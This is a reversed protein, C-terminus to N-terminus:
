AASGQRLRLSHPNVYAHYDDLGLRDDREVLGIGDDEDDTGTRRSESTTGVEQRDLDEDDIEPVSTFSAAIGTGRSYNAHGAGDDNFSDWLLSDVSHMSDDISVISARKKLDVFRSPPLSSAQSNSGMSRRYGAPGQATTPNGGSITNRMSSVKIMFDRISSPPVQPEASDNYAQEFDKGYLESETNRGATSMTVNMNTPITSATAASVAMMQDLRERLRDREAELVANKERLEDNDDALNNLECQVTVADDVSFDSGRRRARLPRSLQPQEQQAANNESTLCREFNLQGDGLSEKSLSRCLRRALSPTQEHGKNFPISVSAGLPVEYDASLPGEYDSDKAGNIESGLLSEVAKGFASFGSGTSTNSGRRRYSGEREQGSSHKKLLVAQKELNAVMQKLEAESAKASCLETRLMCNEETLVRAKSQLIENNAKVSALEVKLNILEGSEVCISTDDRSRSSRSTANSVSNHDYISSSDSSAQSPPSSPPPSSKEDDDDDDDDDIPRTISRRRRSRPDRTSMRSSMGNETLGSISSGDLSRSGSFHRSSTNKTSARHRNLRGRNADSLMQDVDGVSMSDENNTGGLVDMLPHDDVSNVLSSCSGAQGKSRAFTGRLDDEAEANAAEAEDLMAKVAEAEQLMAKMDLMVDRSSRRRAASSVSGSVSNSSSARASSRSSRISTSNRAENKQSHRMKSGGRELVSGASRRATSSSITDSQAQRNNSRRAGSEEVVAESM